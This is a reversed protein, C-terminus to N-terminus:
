LKYIIFFEIITIIMAIILPYKFIAKKIIKVRLLIESIALVIILNLLFITIIAIIIYDKM